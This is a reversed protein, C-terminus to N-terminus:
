EIKGFVKYKEWYIDVAEELKEDSLNTKSKVGFRRLQDASLASTLEDPNKLFNVLASKVSLESSYKILYRFFIKDLGVSLPQHCSLCNQEYINQKKIELDQAFIFSSVVSLMVIVKKVM